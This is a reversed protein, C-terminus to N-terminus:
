QACGLRHGHQRGGTTNNFLAEFGVATNEVGTTNSFLADTAAAPYELIYGGLITWQLQCGPLNQERM